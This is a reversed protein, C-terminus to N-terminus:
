VTVSAAAVESRRKRKPQSFRDNREQMAPRRWIGRQKGDPHDFTACKEFGLIAHFEESRINRPQEVIAAFVPLEPYQNAFDDYLLRALGRGEYKRATAIQKVVPVQGFTKQTFETGLDNEDAMDQPRYIVSFAAPKGGILAAYLRGATALKRYKDAGYASVLFGRHMWEEQEKNDKTGNEPYAVSDAISAIQGIFSEFDADGAGIKRISVRKPNRKGRNQRVNESGEKMQAGAGSNRNAPVNVVVGNHNRLTYYEDGRKVSYYDPAIPIKGVNTAVVYMPQALGTTHGRIADRILEAGKEIPTRFHDAGRVFECYYLYYPRVRIRILKQNLLRFTEVEDNIGKLLVSQNGVNVGHELLRYVAKGLEDTIEKPHNVQINMWVPVRHYGGIASLLGETIRDPLVVPLRSGIRVIEIHPMERLKSVLRGIEEDSAVLPDGGTILVDRIEEHKRIWELGEDVRYSLRLTRDITAERRLCYRCYVGCADTVTFAIRDGYQRAITDPRQDAAARNEKWVLYNDIGLRNECEKASPLVQLRIPCRPDDKDMLNAFYQTVTWRTKTNAIASREESTLNIVRELKDLTRISNKLQKKWEDAMKM